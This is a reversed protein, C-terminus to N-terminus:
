DGTPAGWEVTVAGWTLGAGFAALLVRCGHRLRGDREAETLAIPLTGATTNGYDGICDVVREADFGLADGVAKTIRANAQHPVFLDIDDVTLGARVIAQRSVDILAAVARLFTRHGDMSVPGGPFPTYIADAESGDAGLVAPGVRSPGDIARVVVAGAGDGFIGATVRDNPDVVRSMLDAGVVLATNARGAEIAASAMCLASVFGSCAGGIDMAGAGRAGIADALSPAANPTIADPTMTAVLVLDVAAPQICARHLARSAAPAALATLTGDPTARRRVRVGTRRVLWGSQLGLRQEIEASSVADDPVASAVSVIAAGSRQVASRV